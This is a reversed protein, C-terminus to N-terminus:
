IPPWIHSQRLMTSFTIRRGINTQISPKLLRPSQNALRVCFYAVAYAISPHVSRKNDQSKKSKSGLRQLAELVTEGKKLYPLLNREMSGKGGGEKLEKEEALMMEKQKKESERKRRRAIKIEKESLGEMWRDHVSNPDIHRIYTGDEMFKGEEMEDRMNFSSLEFGMGAKKRREMDDEDEPEDELDSESEEKKDGGFEQGEIDGLRIYTEKRGKDEKSDEGDGSVAFMDDMADEGDGTKKRSAVVGEGDDTSDSEYGETRIRGRRTSKELSAEVQEEFEVPDEEPELFRTKKPKHNNSPEPNQSTATRKQGSRSSM